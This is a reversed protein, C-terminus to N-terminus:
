EGAEGERQRVIGGLVGNVFAGSEATGYKKVLRVAEDVSSGADIDELYLLECVAVRLVALDVANIRELAWKESAGSVVKDIEPLNDRLCAFAFDFYPMDILDPNDFIDDFLSVDTLFAEKTVDSFDGTESMQFILRLLLERTKKRYTTNAKEALGAGEKDSLKCM